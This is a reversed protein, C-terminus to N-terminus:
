FLGSRKYVLKTTEEQSFHNPRKRSHFNKFHTKCRVQAHQSGISVLDGGFSQCHSEAENWTKRESEFARYCTGLQLDKQWGEPCEAGMVVLQTALVWQLPKM